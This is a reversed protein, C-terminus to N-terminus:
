PLLVTYNKGKFEVLSPQSGATWNLIMVTGKDSIGGFTAQSALIGEKREDGIVITSIPKLGSQYTDLTATNTVRWAARGKSALSATDTERQEVILRNNMSVIKVDRCLGDTCKGYNSEEPFAILNIPAMLGLWYFFKGESEPNNKLQEHTKADLLHEITRAGMLGDSEQSHQLGFVHGLEHQITVLLLAGDMISWPDRVMDKSELGEPGKAPAVHIFGRGRLKEEDYETRIAIAASDIHEEHAVAKAESLHSSQEENLNGLTFRLDINADCERHVVSVRTVVRWSELARDVIELAAKRTIGFDAENIELCWTPNSQGALFWPNAKTGFIHRGGSTVTGNPKPPVAQQSTSEPRQNADPTVITPVTEPAPSVHGPKRGCGPLLTGGIVTIALMTNYKNVNVERKQALKM